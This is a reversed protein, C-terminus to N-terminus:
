LQTTHAHRRISQVDDRWDGVFERLADEHNLDRNQSFISDVSQLIDEPKVGSPYEKKGDEMDRRLALSVSTQAVSVLLAGNLIHQLGFHITPAEPRKTHIDFLIRSEDSDDFIEEAALRALRSASCYHEEEEEEFKITSDENIPVKRFQLRLIDKASELTPRSVKIKIDIRGDRTIAPDLTDSRNTALIMLAHSDTLGDMETLFAPVITREVDSSIGSGRKGLIADAEDIFVVSPYNCKQFHARARQFIARVTAEAVGVFRDLIEPGKIYIFADSDSDSARYGSSRYRHLNRLTTAAAKGLMTKGCGPPGYLLVGKTPKKGYNEYLQQFLYPYEVSERLQQKAEELGGIENWDTYRFNANYDLQFRSDAKGLNQLVITGSSDLLVRDGDEVAGKHSGLLVVKVNSEFDVEATSFGSSDQLNTVRRVYAINGSPVPPQVGVIQMTTALLRVGTGPILSDSLYTPPNVVLFRGDTLILVPNTLGREVFGGASDEDGALGKFGGLSEFFVGISLYIAQQPLSAFGFLLSGASKHFGLISIMNENERLADQLKVATSHHQHSDVTRLVTKTFLVPDKVLIRDGLRLSVEHPKGDNGSLMHTSSIISDDRWWGSSGDEVFNALTKGSSETYPFLLDSMGQANCIVIGTLLPQEVFSKLTEDQETLKTKVNSLVHLLNDVKLQLQELDPQETEYGGDDADADKDEDEDHKPAMAPSVSLIAGAFKEFEKKNTSQRKLASEINPPLTLPTPLKKNKSSM